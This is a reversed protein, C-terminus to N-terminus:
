AGDDDDEHNYPEDVSVIRLKAKREEKREQFTPHHYPVILLPANALAALDIRVGSVKTLEELAKVLEKMSDAAPHDM